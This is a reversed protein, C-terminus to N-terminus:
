DGRGQEHEIRHCNPCLVIGNAITHAGGKSKPVRHHADCSAKDWACLQCHNGHHRMVAKAWSHRTKYCHSGDAISYSKGDNWAGNARMKLANADRLLCGCSKTGTARFLNNSQVIKEGGCDCVCRWMARGEKNRGVCETAVLRGSRVGTIDRARGTQSAPEAMLDRKM